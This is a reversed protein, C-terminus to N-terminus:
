PAIEQGGIWVRLPRLAGLRLAFAGEHEADWAVLDAAAGVEFRGLEPSSLADGAGATAAVLAEVATMHLLTAGLGVVLPMTGFGAYTGANADSALAVRAGADLLARAPPLRDRLVIAPAPLLTAVTHASALAIVGGDDLQELHDVSAAGLRVGLETAGTRELQEAHLRLGLGADLAARGIRETDALDFFGADAFVDVFEAAGAAAVAPIMRDAVDAAHDAASGGEAPVAHAGLFTRVVRIPLRQAVRGIIRLHRLEEDLTLGYGSKCEVTTTGAALAARLRREVLEELTADDAARTARVTRLIGGAAYPAGELRAAAEDSRDGAFCPHTHSDVLGPTVLESGLELREPTSPAEEPSGMWAIRGDEVLMAWPSLGNPALRGTGTLLM